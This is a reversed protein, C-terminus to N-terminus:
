RCVSWLSRSAPKMIARGLGKVLLQNATFRPELVAATSAGVNLDEARSKGAQTEEGGGQRM